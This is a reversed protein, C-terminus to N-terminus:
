LNKIEEYMLNNIVYVQRARRLNNVLRVKLIFFNSGPPLSKSEIVGIPIGRPFHHGYGSTILTDGEVVDAHKPIAKLDM